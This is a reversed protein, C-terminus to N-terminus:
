RRSRPAVLSACFPTTIAADNAWRFARLRSDEPLPVPQATEELLAQIAPSAGFVTDGWQWYESVVLGRHFCNMLLTMSATDSIVSRGTRTDRGFETASPTERLITASLEVDYDGLYYLASLANTSIVVDASSVELALVPAAADWRVGYQVHLSEPGTFLVKVARYVGPTSALLFATSGAVM